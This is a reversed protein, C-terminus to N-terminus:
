SGPPCSHSKAQVNRTLLQRTTSLAGPAETIRLYVSGQTQEDSCAVQMQPMVVGFDIINICPCDNHGGRYENGIDLLLNSHAEEKGLM